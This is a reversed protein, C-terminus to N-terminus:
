RRCDIGHFCSCICGTKSPIGAPATPYDEAAFYRAVKFKKVPFNCLVAVDIPLTIKSRGHWSRITLQVRPLQSRSALLVPLASLAATTAEFVDVM